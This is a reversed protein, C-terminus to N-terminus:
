CCDGVMISHIVIAVIHELCGEFFGLEAHLLVFALIHVHVGDVHLEEVEAFEHLVGLFGGTQMVVEPEQLIHVFKVIKWEAALEFM